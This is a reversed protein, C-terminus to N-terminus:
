ADPFKTREREEEIMRKKLLERRHPVFANVYKLYNTHLYMIASVVAGVNTKKETIENLIDTHSAKKCIHRLSLRTTHILKSGVM